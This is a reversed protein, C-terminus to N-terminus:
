QGGGKHAGADLLTLAEDFWLERALASALVRVSTLEGVSAAHLWIGGPAVEPGSLALRERWDPGALPAALRAVGGVLASAGRWIM